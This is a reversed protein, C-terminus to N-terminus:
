RGPPIQSSNVVLDIQDGARSVNSWYLFSYAVFARIGDTVQYGVTTQGEYVVAFRDNDFTGINTPQTLLGGANVMSMGNPSTVRTDGSITVESHTNGLAVLTRGSLIWRGSRTEGAVGVQGGNFSNTSHFSDLLNFTTGQPIAPNNNSLVTLSEAVDVKDQLNLYRYGALLDVRNDCACRINHIFNADFGYLDTSTHINVTGNVVGPFCVLESNPNGFAVLQANLPNPVGPNVDFFPRALVPSDLCSFTQNSSSTGLFFFSGEIGCQQCDDLWYGARIRFGPELDDDM